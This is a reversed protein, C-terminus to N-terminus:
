FVAILIDTGKQKSFSLIEPYKIAAKRLSKPKQQYIRV